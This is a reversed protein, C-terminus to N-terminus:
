KREFEDLSVRKGLPPGSTGDSMRPRYGREELIEASGAKLPARKVGQRGGFRLSIRASAVGVV